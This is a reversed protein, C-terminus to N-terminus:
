DLINLYFIHIEINLHISCLLRKLRNKIMQKFINYYCIKVCFPVYPIGGRQMKKLNQDAIFHLSKKHNCLVYNETFPTSLISQQCITLVHKYQFLIDIFKLYAADKINRLMKLSSHLLVKWTFFSSSYDNRGIIRRKSIEFTKNCLLVRHKWDFIWQQAM